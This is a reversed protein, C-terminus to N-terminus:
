HVWQKSTEFFIMGKLAHVQLVPTKDKVVLQTNQVYTSAAWNSNGNWEMEMECETFNYYIITTYTIGSAAHYLKTCTGMSVDKFHSHNCSLPHWDMAIGIHVITYSLTATLEWYGQESEGEM